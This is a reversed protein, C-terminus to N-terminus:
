ENTRITYLNLIKNHVNDAKIRYSEDVAYLGQETKLHHIVNSHEKYGMYAATEELILGEKYYLINCLLKKPFIIRNTRSRNEKFNLPVNFEVAIIEEVKAMRENM